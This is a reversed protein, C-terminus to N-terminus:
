KTLRKAAERLVAAVAPHSTEATERYERAVDALEESTTYV